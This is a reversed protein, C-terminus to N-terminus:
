AGRPGPLLKGPNLIGVPDVQTKVAGLIAVGLDGIEERLYPQHDLGVGHHHTITGGGDLVAQSAASKADRWQELEQGPDQRAIWTFYLSCGTAYVHSIHCMVLASTQRDVLAKALAARVCRYLGRHNSWTTATELTEILIARDMLEDRLYPGNFRSHAWADGPRTGLRLPNHGGIVKAAGQRRAAVRAPNGDWGLIVLSAPAYGRLQLYGRLATGKLGESQQVFVATEDEDSLRCVDPSLGAQALDRLMAAGAAFSPAAYAEYVEVEPAHHVALTTETIVGLTGESGLILQRLDPGAATAPSRGLHLQGTPTAVRVAHVKEDIRGHGTSAQGASRTAVYGGITAYEYSQPFHGLSYGRRRLEAEAAAGSIGPEFTALLSEEDLGVMHNMLSLDLCLLSGFGGREPEVGGVVSTGGGFPVVAIQHSAALSLLRMVQAHTQPHVVADPATTADGQRLRLLDPYSKGGAHQIRSERDQRVGDPGVIGVLAAHMRSSLRSQDMRVDEVAVPPTFRSLAGIKSVLHAEARPSLGPRKTPDGWGHWIMPRTPPSM